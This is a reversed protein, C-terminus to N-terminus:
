VRMQFSCADFVNIQGRYHSLESNTWPGATGTERGHVISNRSQPESLCVPLHCPMVPLSDPIQSEWGHRKSSPSQSDDIIFHCGALETAHLSTWPFVVHLYMEHNGRSCGHSDRDNIEPELSKRWSLSLRYPVTHSGRFRADKGLDQTQSADM